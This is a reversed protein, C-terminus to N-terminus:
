AATKPVLSSAGAATGYQGVKGQVVREVTAMGTSVQGQVTSANDVTSISKVLSPDGRVASIVNGDGVGDGAVVVPRDGAKSFQAALTVM